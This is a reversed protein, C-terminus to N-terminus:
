KYTTPHPANTTKGPWDHDYRAGCWCYDRSGIPDGPFDVGGRSSDTRRHRSPPRWAASKNALARATRESKPIPM